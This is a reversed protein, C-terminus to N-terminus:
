FIYVWDPPDGKEGGGTGGRMGLSLFYAEVYRACNTSDARWYVWNMVNKGDNKHEGFRREPNNTVGITKYSYSGKPVLSEIEKIIELYNM